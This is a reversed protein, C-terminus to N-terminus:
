ILALVIEQQQGILHIHLLVHLAHQRQLAHQAIRKVPLVDKFELTKSPTTNAWLVCLIM